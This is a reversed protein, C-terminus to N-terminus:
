FREFLTLEGLELLFRELACAFQNNQSGQVTTLKFSLGFVFNGDLSRPEKRLLNDLNLMYMWVVSRGNSGIFVWKKEKVLCLQFQWALGPFSIYLISNIFFFFFGWMVMM